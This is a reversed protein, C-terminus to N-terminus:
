NAARRLKALFFGDSGLMRPFLTTMETGYAALSEFNQWPKEPSFEPHASLFASVVQENEAKAVTCTSYVLVGGPKVSAASAELIRYQIEPLAATEELSKYRIEPKRRIVGFGSCPVDCLVRDAMPRDPAPKAADGVQASICSLHLRKAGDRILKVRNEHLDYSLVRGRNQMWQAITFSKGGPAACVDLITEDPQPDLALCCLQSALDQVHFMGKRFADLETLQGGRTLLYADPVSPVKTLMQDPFSAIFAAEDCVLPNRKLYIPPEGISGSLFDTILEKPYDSLLQRILPLPVSYQISLAETEEAPIPIKKEARLFGRLVANVFGSAKFQRLAKATETWLNVVAAEQTRLSLLEYIGCRLICRIRLDIQDPDRRAYQRICADVTLLREVTGQFLITCIRKDQPSLNSKALATHLALNGYSKAEAARILTRVCLIRPELGTM